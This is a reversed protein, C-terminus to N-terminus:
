GFLNNMSDVLTEGRAACGTPDEDRGGGAKAFGCQDASPDGTVPSRCVARVSGREFDEAHDPSWQRALSDIM